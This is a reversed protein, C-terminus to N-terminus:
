VEMQCVLIWPIKRQARRNGFQGKSLGLNDKVEPFRPVWAIIELGFIFFLAAIVKRELTDM